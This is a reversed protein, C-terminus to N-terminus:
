HHILHFVLSVGIEKYGRISIEFASKYRYTLQIVLGAFELTTIRQMGADSKIRISIISFLWSINKEWLVESIFTFRTM